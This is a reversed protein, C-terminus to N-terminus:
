KILCHCCPDSVAAAHAANDGGFEKYHDRGDFALSFFINNWMYMRFRFTYLLSRDSNISLRGIYVTPALFFSETANQNLTRKNESRLRQPLTESRNELRVVFRLTRRFRVTTLFRM